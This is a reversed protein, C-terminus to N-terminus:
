KVAVRGRMVAEDGARELKEESCWGVSVDKELSSTVLM